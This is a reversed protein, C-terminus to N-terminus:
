TELWREWDIESGDLVPGDKCAHLYGGGSAPVACALCAGVGCAMVEEVSVECTIGRAACIRSVEALMQNPGCAVVQIERSVEGPDAADPSGPAVGELVKDLGDCATGALGKSGDETCPIVEVGEVTLGVPILLEAKTAAGVILTTRDFVSVYKRCYYAVPPLGIGGAVAIVRSVGDKVSFGTGLPGIVDLSDGECVRAMVGTARGVVKYVIEIESDGDSSYISFARKLYPWGPSTSGLMVFQGPQCHQAAEPAELRLMYFDARLPENSIIRSSLAHTM